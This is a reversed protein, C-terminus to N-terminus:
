SIPETRGRKYTERKPKTRKRIREPYNECVWEILWVRIQYVSRKIMRSIDLITKGEYYMVLVKEKDVLDDYLKEFVFSHNYACKYQQLRRGKYKRGRFVETGFKTIDTENEPLNPNYENKKVCKPCKIEQINNLVTEKIKKILANDKVICFKCKEFSGGMNYHKMTRATICDPCKLSRVGYAQLYKSLLEKENKVRLDSREIPEIDYWNPLIKEKKKDEKNNKGEITEDDSQKEEDLKDHHLNKVQPEQENTSETENSNESWTDDSNDIEFEIIDNEDDFSNHNLNNSQETDM